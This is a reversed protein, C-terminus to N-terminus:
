PNTGDHTPNAHQHFRHTCQHIQGPLDALADNLLALLLDIPHENHHICLMDIKHKTQYPLSTLSAHFLSM